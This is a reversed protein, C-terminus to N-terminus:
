FDKYNNTRDLWESHNKGEEIVSYMTKNIEDIIKPNILKLIKFTTEATPKQTNAEIKNITSPAVNLRKAISKQTIKNIARYSRLAQGIKVDIDTYANILNLKTAEILMHESNNVNLRKYIHYIYTKVTKPTIKLEHAIDIRSKGENLLRVIDIQKNTLM